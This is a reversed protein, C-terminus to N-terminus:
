NSAAVIAEGPAFVDLLGNAFAYADNTGKDLTAQRLDLVFVGNSGLVTAGDVNIELATEENLGIALTDPHAYALAVL